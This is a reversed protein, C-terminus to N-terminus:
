DIKAYNRQMSPPYKLYMKVIDRHETIESLIISTSRLKLGICDVGAGVCM